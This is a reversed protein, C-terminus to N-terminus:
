FGYIESYRRAVEDDSYLRIARNSQELKDVETYTKESFAILAKLLAESSSREFTEGLHKTCIEKHISIDSLIVYLGCALAELVVNPMGENHSPLVLCDSAKMLLEPSDVEGVYEAQVFNPDLQNLRIIFNDADYIPGAFTFEICAGRYKELAIMLNDIGKRKSIAGIFVYRKGRGKGPKRNVGVCNFRNVDIGNPIRRINDKKIGLDEAEREIKNSLAIIVDAAKLYRRRVLKFLGLNKSLLAELDDQAVKVIAKKRFIKALFVPIVIEPGAKVIHVVDARLFCGPWRFIAFVTFLFYNFRRIKNDSNFFSHVMLNREHPYNREKGYATIVTISIDKRQQLLRM